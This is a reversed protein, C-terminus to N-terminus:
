ANDIERNMASLRLRATAAIARATGAKSSISEADRFRQRLSPDREVEEVYLDPDWPFMLPNVGSGALGLLQSVENEAEIEFRDAEVILQILD